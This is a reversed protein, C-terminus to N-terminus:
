SIRGGRGKVELELEKFYNTQTMDEPNYQEMEAQMRTIFQEDNRWRYMTPITQKSIWLLFGADYKVVGTDEATRLLYTVHFRTPMTKLMDVVKLFQEIKQVKDRDKSKIYRNLQDKVLMRSADGRVLRLIVAVQYLTFEPFQEQVYRLATIADNELDDLKVREIEEEDQEAIYWNHYSASYTFKDRAVLPHNMMMQIGWRGRTTDGHFTNSGDYLTVEFTEIYSRPKSFDMRFVLNGRLMDQSMSNTYYDPEVGDLIEYWIQRTIHEAQLIKELKPEWTSPLSYRGRIELPDAGLFPNQVVEEGGTMYKGKDRDPAFRLIETAGKAKRKGSVHGTDVMEKKIPDWVKVPALHRRQFSEQPVPKVIIRTGIM